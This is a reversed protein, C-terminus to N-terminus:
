MSKMCRGWMPASCRRLCSMSPPKMGQAGNDRVVQLVLSRDPGALLQADPWQLLTGDVQATLDIWGAAVWNTDTPMAQLGDLRGYVRDLTGLPANLTGSIFQNNHATIFDSASPGTDSSLQVGVVRALRDTVTFVLGQLASSRTVDLGDDPLAALESVVVALQGASMGTTDVGLRQLDAESLNVAEGAVVALLRQVTDALVEIQAVTAVDATQSNALSDNLLALGPFTLVAATTAGIAAYDDTTPQSNPTTDVLMGNAEALIRVYADVVTQVKAASDLATGAAAASSLASQIAALNRADVGTIQAHAFDALAPLAVPVDQTYGTIVALAASQSAQQLLSRVDAMSQLDSSSVAPSKLLDALAVLSTGQVGTMGLAQMESVTLSSAPDKGDALSMLKGVTTALAELEGVSDVLYFPQDALVADMLRLGEPSLGAATVAGIRAYDAALVQSQPTADAALGNAEALIGAYADVLAQVDPLSGIANGAIASSALASNLAFVNRSDVGQVDARQWDALTPAAVANNSSDYRQLVQMLDGRVTNVLGQLAALDALGAGSDATAAVAALIASLNYPTVGSLGLAQLDDASLAASPTGGAATLMLAQVTNALAEIEAVSNIASTTQEAMVQNLLQQGFSGDPLAAAATAGIAAYTAAQPDATTSDAAAGNAEALILAYAEVMAQVQAVSSFQGAQSASSTLVSNIAALNDTNVGSVGAVLYNALTPLPAATDDAAQAIVALATAIAAQAGQSSRIVQSVREQVDNISLVGRGDDPGTAISALVDALNGADVGFIGLAAFDDASLAPSAVAGAATDMLGQVTRALADIKSVENVATVEANAIVDLLLQQAASDDALSAAATAGIAAFTAATPGVANADPARGNAETLILQYADVVAQLAEPTVSPIGGSQIANIVALRNAETVGTLGAQEFVTLIPEDSPNDVLAQLVEIAAAQQCAALVVSQLRALTNIATGADPTNALATLVASLNQPTVGPVGLLAFDTPTLAQAATLGAATELLAASISALAQIQALTQVADTTQAGIVDNLLVLANQGLSTSQAAVGLDVGIREFSAVTVDSVTLDNASGNAESQIRNFADVMAQLADVTIGGSPLGPMALAQNILDLAATNLNTVGLLTYDTLSPEASNTADSAYALLRAQAVQQDLVTNLVLTQLLAQTQIQSGDNATDTIASLVQVLNASDVGTVGLALFDAPTPVESAPLASAQSAAVVMFRETLRALAEIKAVSDLMQPSALSILDNFLVLAASGPRLAAAQFAGILAFDAAVPQMTPTADLAQSLVAQVARALAGVEASTDVAATTQSDTVGSYTNAGALVLTGDGTKVLGSGANAGALVGAYTVSADRAVEIAGSGTIEITRTAALTLSSAMKLTAGDAILARATSAGLQADSSVTLTGALIRIDGTQSNASRLVLEGAGTKTFSSSGTLTGDFSLRNGAAVDIANVKDTLASPLLANGAADQIVASNLDIAGLSFGDAVMTQSSNATYVLLGAAANSAAADLTAILTDGGVTVSLRTGGLGTSTGVGESLTLSLQLSKGSVAVSVSQVTPATSDFMLGLQDLLDSSLVSASEVQGLVVELQADAGLATSGTADSSAAIDAGLVTQLQQLFVSQTGQAAVDCGYLLVDADPALASRWAALTQAHQHLYAQDVRTDGFILANPEGHSILHLATVGSEQALVDALAQLPEADAALVRLQAQPYQTQLDAKLASLEASLVILVQADQPVQAQSAAQTADSMLAVAEAAPNLAKSKETSLSRADVLAAPALFPRAAEPLRSLAATHENAPLLKDTAKGLATDLAAGDFMLRQELALM